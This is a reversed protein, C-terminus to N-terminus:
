KLNKQYEKIKRALIKRARHFQSASTSESIGLMNAIEKHPKEEFVALNFVTRYGDPLEQIMKQIVENPIDSFEPATDDDSIDPLEEQYEIFNCRKQRRLYQLAENVTIRKAWALFSGKGKWTFKEIASFIKIFSEQLVDEAEDRDPIYRSCMALLYGSWQDYLKKMATHSGKRIDEALEKESFTNTGFIRM